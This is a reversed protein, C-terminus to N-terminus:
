KVWNEYDSLISQTYRHYKKPKDGLQMIRVAQLASNNIDSLYKTIDGDKMRSFLKNEFAYQRLNHNIKGYDRQFNSYEENNLYHMKGNITMSRKAKEMRVSNINKIKDEGVADKQKNIDKLTDQYRKLTEYTEDYNRNRIGLDVAEGATRLIPNDINDSYAPEGIANYKIPLNDSLGPIGDLTRNLANEFSNKSYTERKYPDVTNRIERQFGSLPTLQNVANQLTAGAVDAAIEETPKEQYGSPNLANVINSVGQAVPMTFPAEAARIAAESLGKNNLGNEGIAMGISLPISTDPSEKLSISKDGIAISQPRIGTVDDDQYDNSGINSYIQEPNNTMANGIGYGATGIGAGKIGKAMLMEADRIEQPTHAAAYKVAGVPLGAVNKLGQNTVNAVTQVFPMAWDGVNPIVDKGIAENLGESISNFGKRLNVGAKSAWSEDQFVAEKAEKVAQEIMENTPENVGAAKMQDAISSAYRAEYFARDPVRISYNLAKELGYLGNEVAQKAKEGFSGNIDKLSKYKFTQGNKLDYREGDGARGTRIGEKVDEIGYKLGDKLGEQWEKNHLGSRVKFGHINKTLVNDIGNAIVEDVAQSGQFASTFLIDKIRSKPSLLMNIYRFTDIKKMFGVPIKEATYKGIKGTLVDMERQFDKMEKPTLKGNQKVIEEYKNKTAKIGDTFVKYNNFDEANLEPINYKKNIFKTLNEENLEGVSELRILEDTISQRTNKNVIRSTLLKDIAKKRISTSKISNAEKVDKIIDEVNDLLKTVNKPTAKRISEQAIIMAKEPSDAVIVGRAQLAQATKTGEKAWKNLKHVPVIGSQLDNKLELGRATVALDSVDNSNILTQIEEPSMNNLITENVSQGRTSYTRDTITNATESGYNNEITNVSGRIKEQSKINNLTNQENNKLGSVANTDINNTNTINAEPAKPNLNDVSDTISSNSVKELDSPSIEQGNTYTENLPRLESSAQNPTKKYKNYSSVVWKRDQKNYDLRIVTETADDVIYKRGNHGAKELVKGNKIMNPLTRIYEEGNLGEATRREIIHQLGGSSDGWVLDIDGIGEKYFAKPVFGKKFKLLTEIARRPSGSASKFAIGWDKRKDVLEQLVKQRAKQNLGYGIAGGLAGFPLGLAAGAAAYELPRKLVDKTIGNDALSSTIGQTVGGIAGTKTANKIGEKIFKKIGGKAIAAEGGTAVDVGINTASVLDNGLTKADAKLQEKLPAQLGYQAELEWQPVQGRYSPIIGIRPQYDKQIGSIIPHKEEWEARKQLNQRAREKVKENQKEVWMEAKAQLPLGDYHAEQGDSNTYYESHPMEVQPINYLSDVKNKFAKEDINGNADKPFDANSYTYKKNEAINKNVENDIDDFLGSKTKKKAVKEKQMKAATKPALQTIKDVKEFQDWYNKNLTNPAEELEDWINNNQATQQEVLIDDYLGM